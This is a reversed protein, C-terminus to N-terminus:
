NDSVVIGLAISLLKAEASDARSPILIPASAGMIVHALRFGAFYTTSKALLNASEIDPCILIEARGAVASDLNKAEAAQPSVANDLALPGDVVCGTIQRRLSMQALLAADLSSPWEPVVTEVASLVAVKPNMNGLKHAVEVANRLIEIKQQLNPAPNVGGDTIMVLQNGSRRPDEFVFVDSLLRGPRLGEGPDLVARLFNSTQVKGKLLIDAEGLRVSMVAEQLAMIDRSLHRIELFEEAGVGIKECIRMIKERDGFLRAQALGLRKAEVLASLAAEDNSVALAVRRPGRSKAENLLHGFNEIRKM